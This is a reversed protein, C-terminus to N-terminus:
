WLNVKIGVMISHTLLNEKGVRAPHDGVWDSSRLIIDPNDVRAAGFWAGFTYNAMITVVETIDYALGLKAELRTVFSSENDSVHSNRTGIGHTLGTMVQSGDLHANRYYLFLSGAGDFRLKETINQHGRVGMKAGVFWEDIREDTNAVKTGGGGFFGRVDYDFKQRIFAFAPGVVLNLAVGESSTVKYIADM